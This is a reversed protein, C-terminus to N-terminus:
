YSVLKKENRICDPCKNPDLFYQDPTLPKNCDECRPQEEARFVEKKPKFSTYKNWVRKKQKLKPM